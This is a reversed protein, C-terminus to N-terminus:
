LSGGYPRSLEAVQMSTTTKISDLIQRAAGGGAEGGNGMQRGGILISQKEFGGREAPRDPAGPARVGSANRRRDCARYSAIHAKLRHVRTAM